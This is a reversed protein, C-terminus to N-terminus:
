IDGADSYNACDLRSTEWCDKLNRRLCADSRTGEALVQELHNSREVLERNTVIQNVIVTRSTGYFTDLKSGFGFCAGAPRKLDNCTLQPQGEFPHVPEHEISDVGPFSDAIKNVSQVQAHAGGNVSYVTVNGDFSSGAILAPNRPCWAVDFNWQNTTALESLIEGNQEESNQNWCHIKNDKGCSAVLDFDKPCWTLGLVGRQHIHFTKTPATAYHLDWLQVSPSCSSSVSALIHQVRRNWTLDQVDEFPQAKTGSSMPAATINLDWIFIESESAGSGDAREGRGVAEFRQLGPHHWSRLWRRHGREPEHVYWFGASEVRGQPVPACEDLKGGAESRVEGQIIKSIFKNCAVNEEPWLAGRYSLADLGDKGHDRRASSGSRPNGDTSLTWINKEPIGPIDSNANGLFGDVPPGIGRALKPRFETWRHVSKEQLVNGLFGDVPPGTGRALKPLFETWRHVFKEQLVNGLFGDMPPGTGRALKPRFETWRHVSEKKAPIGNVPPRIEGSFCQGSIRGGTSWNRKGVKAPIRDVLPRIGKQGSNREGTSSNRRCFMAWFDTWRHVLEEQWGQCSNRGGTSSNRRCFMAWFDTWRHVLEEQWSQGSIRGGTSWNRKSVKAPIGDVPPRIEGAFCQGSIRGGTSWNRKSVKAPIRDVPPRIEGAFCQGSIRGGTSWNRKGVKAPIRDVLPRIGEVFM